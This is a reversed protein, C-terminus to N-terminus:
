RALIGLGAVGDIGAKSMLSDIRPLFVSNHSIAKSFKQVLTICHASGFADRHFKSLGNLYFSILSLKIVIKRWQSLWDAEQLRPFAQLGVENRLFNRLTKEILANPESWVAGPSHAKSDMFANYGEFSESILAIFATDKAGPLQMRENTMVQMYLARLGLVREEPLIHAVEQHFSGDLAVLKTQLVLMEIHEHKPETETNFYNQLKECLFGVLLVLEWLPMNPMSSLEFILDRVQWFMSVKPPIAKGPKTTFGGVTPLLKGKPITLDIPSYVPPADSELCLRAAEPCSLYLHMETEQGINSFQRPYLQCTKSLYDEGLESQIACLQTQTLAPCKGSPEMQIFGHRLTDAEPNVKFYSKILNFVPKDDLSKIKKYTAKDVDVRWGACCTDPCDSGVCKFQHVYDPANVTHFRNSM